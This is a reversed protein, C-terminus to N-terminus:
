SLGAGTPSIDQYRVTAKLYGVLTAVVPTTGGLEVTITSQAVLPTGVALTGAASGSTNYVGIAEAQAESAQLVHNTAASGSVGFNITPTTGTLNFAEIVEMLSERVTAGAPLVITPGNYTATGVTFDSGRLHLVLEKYAGVDGNAGFNAEDGTKRTGFQVRLGDANNWINGM